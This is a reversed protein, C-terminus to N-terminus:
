KLKYYERFWGVFEMVGQQITTKPSYNYDKILDDVNAWTRKVDGPQRAYIQDLLVQAELSM